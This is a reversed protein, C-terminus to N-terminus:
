KAGAFARLLSHASEVCDLVTPEKSQRKAASAAHCFVAAEFTHRCLPSHEISMLITRLKQKLADSNFDFRLDTRALPKLWERRDLDDWYNECDYITDRMVLAACLAAAKKTKFRLGEVSRLRDISFLHKFWYCDGMAVVRWGSPEQVLRVGYGYTSGVRYAGAYVGRERREWAMEAPALYTAAVAGLKTTALALAEAFRKAEALTEYYHGYRNDSPYADPHHRNMDLVFSDRVLLMKRGHKEIKIERNSPLGAATWENSGTKWGLRKLGWRTVGEEYNDCAFM